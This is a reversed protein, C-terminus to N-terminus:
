NEHFNRTVGFKFTAEIKEEFPRSNPIKSISIIGFESSLGLFSHIYDISASM